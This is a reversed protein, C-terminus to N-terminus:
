RVRCLTLGDGVPVIQQTVREDEAVRRNFERIAETQKDVVTPDAVKGYWLVNDVAILGGPRVLKLLKEYYEWYGRKDADVFGVDYHGPGDRTLLDDLTTKGDGLREEIKSEVGAIKWYKRAVEFSPESTDCAVLVGDTPLALAMAISSYGTYTGVEIVRKAGMLEILLAMLQGQEPPVQMQSGRLTSTEVRLQRLVDPERTTGLLYSYLNADLDIPGKNWPDDATGGGDTSAARTSSVARRHPHARVSARVTQSPQSAPQTGERMPAHAARTLPTPATRACLRTAVAAVTTVARTM